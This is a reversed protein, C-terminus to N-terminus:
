AWKKCPGVHSNTKIIKYHNKNFNQMNEEMPFGCIIKKFLWLYHLQLLNLNGNGVPLHSPVSPLLFALGQSVPVALLRGSLLAVLFITPM